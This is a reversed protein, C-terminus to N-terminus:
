IYKIVEEYNWANIVGIPEKWCNKLIKYDENNKAILDISPNNYINYLERFVKNEQLIWELEQVYFLKRKARLCQTLIKTSKIDTSFLTHEYAYVHQIQFQACPIRIGPVITQPFIIPCYKYTNSLLSLINTALSKNEPTINLNPIIIGFSKISPKSM